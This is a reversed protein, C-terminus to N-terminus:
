SKRDVVTERAAATIADSAKNDAVQLTYRTIACLRRRFRHSSTKRCNQGNDTVRARLTSIGCIQRSTDTGGGAHRTPTTRSAEQNQKGIPRFRGIHRRHDAGLEQALDMPEASGATDDVSKVPTVSLAAMARQMVPVM